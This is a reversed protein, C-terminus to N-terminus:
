VFKRKIGAKEETTATTADPEPAFRLLLLLARRRRAEEPPAAVAVRPKPRRRRRRKRRGRSSPSGSAGDGPAGGNELEGLGGGRVSTVARVARRNTVGGGEASRSLLFRFRAM